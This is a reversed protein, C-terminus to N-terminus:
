VRAEAPELFSISPPGTVGAQAMVERLSPDSTFAKAADLTPYSMVVTVANPDEAGRYVDVSSCGHSARVAGHEEFAPKWTDFDAVSHQVIVTTM